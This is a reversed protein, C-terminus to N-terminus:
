KNLCTPHVQLCRSSSVHPRRLGRRSGGAARRSRWACTQALFSFPLESCGCPSSFVGVVSLAALINLHNGSTTFLCRQDDKDLNTPGVKFLLLVGISLASDTKHHTLCVPGSYCVLAPLQCLSSEVAGLIELFIVWVQQRGHCTRRHRWLQTQIILMNMNNDSFSRSGVKNGSERKEIWKKSFM